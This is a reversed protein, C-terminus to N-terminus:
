CRGTNMHGELTFLFVPRNHEEAAALAQGLSEAWGIKDMPRGSFQLELKEVRQEVWSVLYHDSVEANSIRCVLLITTAALIAILRLM